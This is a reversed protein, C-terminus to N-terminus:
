GGTNTSPPTIARPTQLSSPPLPPATFEAPLVPTELNKVLNRWRQREEPSMKEWREANRLFKQREAPPLSAFKEFSQVCAIRQEVPLNSFSKLTQAMQERETDSLTSLVKQRERDSFAFFQEFTACTNTQDASSM